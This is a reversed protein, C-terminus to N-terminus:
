RVGLAGISDALADAQPRLVPDRIARLDDLARAALGVRLSVKARYYRGEDHYPSEPGDLLADYAALAVSDAGTMMASAGLFFHVPPAAVAPALAGLAAMARAYHGVQYAQMAAEFREDREDARVPIGLYVPPAAVAGLSAFRATDSGSWPLFLALAAGAALGIAGWAWRVPRARPAREAASGAASGAARVSMGLGTETRCVACELLHAEFRDLDDGALKGAVFRAALGASEARAHTLDDTM